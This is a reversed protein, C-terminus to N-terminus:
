YVELRYNKAAPDPDGSRITFTFVADRVAIPIWSGVGGPQYHFWLLGDTRIPWVILRATVETLAATLVVSEEGDAGLAGSTMQM